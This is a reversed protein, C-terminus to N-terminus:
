GDAKLIKLEEVKVKVPPLEGDTVMVTSGARKLIRVELGHPLDGSVVVARDGPKPLRKKPNKPKSHRM